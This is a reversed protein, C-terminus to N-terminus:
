QPAFDWYYFNYIMRTRYIYQRLAEPGKAAAARVGAQYDPFAQAAPAARTTTTAQALLVPAADVGSADSSPTEAAFAVGVTLAALAIAARTISKAHM